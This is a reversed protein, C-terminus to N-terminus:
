HPRKAIASYNTLKTLGGANKLKDNHATSIPSTTYNLLPHGVHSMVRAINPTSTRGDQPSIYHVTSSTCHQPRTDTNQTNIPPVANCEKTYARRSVVVVVFFVVKNTWLDSPWAMSILRSLPSAATMAEVARTIHSHAHTLYQGSRPNSYKRWKSNLKDWSIGAVDFFFGYIVNGCLMFLNLSKLKQKLSHIFCLGHNRLIAVPRKDNVNKVSSGILLYYYFCILRAIRSVAIFIM